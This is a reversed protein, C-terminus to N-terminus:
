SAAGARFGSIEVQFEQNGAAAGQVPSPAQIQLNDPYLVPRASEIAHLFRGLSAVDGAARLRVGIKAAEGVNESRLVQLSQVQVRNAVAAAKVTEQLLALAQAEPVDPFLSAPLNAPRPTPAPDAPAAALARYRQLVANRRALVGAGSGLMDFYAVVPGLWVAIGVLLLIGLAAVRSRQADSPGSM